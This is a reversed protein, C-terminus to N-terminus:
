KVPNALTRLAEARKFRKLRQKVNSEIVYYDILPAFVNMLLIALMMAEPYAPNVVRILVALMGTMLGYIWKGSETQSATVPDTAM